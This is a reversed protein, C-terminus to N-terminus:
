DDHDDPDGDTDPASAEDEDDLDDLWGAAEARDWQDETWEEQSAPDLDSTDIEDPDLHDYRHAYKWRAILEADSGGERIRITGLEVPPPRLTEIFAEADEGDEICDLLEEFEEAVATIL